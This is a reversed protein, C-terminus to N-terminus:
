NAFEEKLKMLVIIPNDFVSIEGIGEIKLSGQDKMIQAPNIIDVLYDKYWVEHAIFSAYTSIKVEDPFTTLDNIIRKTHFTRENTKIRIFFRFDSENFMMNESNKKFWYSIALIGSNNLSLVPFSALGDIDRIYELQKTISLQGISHDIGYKGFDVSIVPIANMRSLQYFTNDYMLSVYIEGEDNTTFCECNPSFGTNNTEIVKDFLIKKIENNEMVIIGANSREELVINSLQQTAFYFICGERRCANYSLGPMPKEDLLEFDINSYKLLSSHSGNLNHLELYQENADIFVAGIWNYEDPGMGRKDLKSIYKGNHNFVFLIQRSVDVAYIYRDKIIIERIRGMICNSDTQIKIYSVSDAFESLNIQEKAKTPNITIIDIGSRLSEKDCGFFLVALLLFFGINENAM